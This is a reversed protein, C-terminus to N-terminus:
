FIRGSVLYCFCSLHVLITRDLSARDVALLVIQKGLVSTCALKLDAPLLKPSQFLKKLLVSTNRPSLSCQHRFDENWMDAMRVISDLNDVKKADNLFAVTCVDAAVYEGVSLAIRCAEYHNSKSIYFDYVAMPIVRAVEDRDNDSCQAILKKLWCEKRYTILLKAVDHSKLDTVL